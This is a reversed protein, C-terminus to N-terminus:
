KLTLCVACKSITRKLAEKVEKNRLSYILPNILPTLITYFVSFVKNLEKMNKSGQLIYVIIITGYFITVVILHSSCTSFAKQRGVTSPIRLIATIICGYSVVTLSFLPLTWISTLIVLLLKVEHADSCAVNALPIFECFFHDIKNYGCFRLQMMFILLIMDIVFGGFMSGTMLQLCVKSNMLATYHLPRCVALCRDYSMAALLCCESALLFGFAWSQMICGNVSVHHEETVFSALMRPVITSSYCIELSSLNGLFFYMPTHLHHDTVVLVIILLNGAITMFYIALFGVFFIIQLEQLDGFDLLIFETIITENRGELHKM